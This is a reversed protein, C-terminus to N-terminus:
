DVIDMLKGSSKSLLLLLGVVTLFTGMFLLINEIGFAAILFGIMGMSILAAGQIIAGQAGFVKGRYEDKVAKQLIANTPSSLMSNTFGIGFAILIVVIFIPFLAMAAVLLGILIIGMSILHVNRMRGALIGVGFSGAVAGIGFLTELIGLGVIDMHLVDRIYLTYVVNMGGVVLMIIGFITVILLVVKNRRMYKFGDMMEKIPHKATRKIEERYRILFIMLASFLYSFADFLFTATYGILAVLGAGLAPGMVVALMYTMQSLSNAEVLKEEKVINPIIANRAPYFFRSVTSLAFILIYVYWISIPSILLAVIIARLLDAWIMTNKRRWRDVFVGAIPGFILVPLSSFIFLLSVDVASGQWKYVILAALGMFAVEDGINSVIQGIWLKLFNRNQLVRKMGEFTV